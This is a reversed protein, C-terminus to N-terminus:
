GVPRLASEIVVVGAGFEEGAAQQWTGDDWLVQVWLRGDQPWSALYGAGLREPLQDQIALLTAEDTDGPEGGFPDEPMMPDYLALLIPPETVTFTAGDYTGQVAYAGWRVDGSTESGDVGDWSWGVLPIGTCQPPYSEAVAGLCLEPSGAADLVTGQGVVEDAPPAPAVAGLPMAAPSSGRPTSGSPTACSTLLLASAALLAAAIRSTTM